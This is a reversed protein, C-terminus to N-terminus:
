SCIASQNSSWRFFYLLIGGPDLTPGPRSEPAAPCAGARGACQNRRLSPSTVTSPRATPTSGTGHNARPWGSSRRKWGGPATPQTKAETIWEVYERKHSPSLKEFSAQAQPNRGLANTLDDPVVVERPTKPKTRGPAKVGDENLKM